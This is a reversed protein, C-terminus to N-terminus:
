NQIKKIKLELLSYWHDSEGSPHYLHLLPFLPSRSHCPKPCWRHCVNPCCHHEPPIYAAPIGKQKYTKWSYVLASVECLLMWGIVILIRLQQNHINMVALLSRLKYCLKLKPPIGRLSCKMASKWLKYFCVSQSQLKLLLSQKVSDVTNSVDLDLQRM